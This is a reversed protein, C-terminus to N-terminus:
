LLKHKRWNFTFTDVLRSPVHWSEQPRPVTYYKGTIVAGEIEVRLFGHRDDVYRELTIEDGTQNMTVPTIVKEGNVRAVQHLHWYGGAGAVIYPFQEDGIGRTFRQYNHVHGAFVIDPHRGSDEIANNLATRMAGSGSHHDDASYVPHHMTVFLAKSKPAKKLESVLWDEQDKRIRGGEPVNSYLGIITALPTLLTWFVNPQTMADRQVDRADPTIVPQSSCFNRVFAELSTEPAVPDGDHNGPVAFIPAVYHEYPKYFQDYYDIAQGNYYVCDGLTYFFIPDATPDNPKHRFDKEMGDVVLQQVEPRKVGGIDGSIQFVMKGQDVIAKHLQKDIVDALDLHYPDPGTPTPLPQFASGRFAPTSLTFKLADKSLRPRGFNRAPKTTKTM